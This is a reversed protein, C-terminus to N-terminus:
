KKKKPVYTYTITMPGQQLIPRSEVKKPIVKKKPKKFGFNITRHATVRMKRNKVSRFELLKAVRKAEEDCGFGLKKKSRTRIVKGNQDIDIVLVVIGEVDNEAAKKPYRLNKVIFDKLAEKGGPYQPIQIFKKPKNDKAM